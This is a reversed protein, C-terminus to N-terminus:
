NDNVLEALYDGHCRRPTCWCAIRKDKLESLHEVVWKNSCGRIIIEKKHEIWQQLWSEHKNCVDDRNGDLGVIFPNGWKTRRDILVDYEDWRCHVVTTAM